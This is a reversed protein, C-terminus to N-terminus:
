CQFLRSEGNHILDLVDDIDISNTQQFTRDSYQRQQQHHVPHQQNTHPFGTNLSSHYPTLYNSPPPCSNFQLAAPADDVPTPPVELQDFDYNYLDEVNLDGLNTLEEDIDINISNYVCSNQMENHLQQREIQELQEYLTQRRQQLFARRQHYAANGIRSDSYPPQQNYGGGSNVTYVTNIESKTLATSAMYNYLTPTQDATCGNPHNFSHDASTNNENSTEFKHPQQVLGGNSNIETVGSNYILQKSPHESNGDCRFSNIAVSKEIKGTLTRPATTKKAAKQPKEENEVLIALKEPVENSSSENVPVDSSIVTSFIDEMVAEFTHESHQAPPKKSQKAAKSKKKSSNRTTAKPTSEKIKKQEPNQRSHSHGHGCEDDSEDLTVVTPTSIEISSRQQEKNPSYQDANCEPSSNKENVEQKKDGGGTLGGGFERIRDCQFKHILQVILLATKRNTKILRVVDEVAQEISMEEQLQFELKALKEQEGKM